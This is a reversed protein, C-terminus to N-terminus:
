NHDKWMDEEVYNEIWYKKKPIRSNDMRVKHGDWQLRTPNVYKVIEPGYLLVYLQENNRLGWGL